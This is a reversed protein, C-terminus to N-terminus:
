VMEKKNEKKIKRNERKSEKKIFNVTLPVVQSATHVIINTLQSTAQDIDSQNTDFASNYFNTPLTQCETSSFAEHLRNKIFM